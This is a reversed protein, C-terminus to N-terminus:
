FRLETNYGGEILPTNQSDDSYIILVTYKISVLDLSGAKVAFVAPPDVQIKRIETPFFILYNKQIYYHV